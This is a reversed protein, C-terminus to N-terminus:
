DMPIINSQIMLSDTRASKVNFIHTLSGLVLGLMGLFNFIANFNLSYIVIKPPNFLHTKSLKWTFFKNCVRLFFCTFNNSVIAIIWIFVSSNIIYFSGGKRSNITKATEEAQRKTLGVLENMSIRSVVKESLM